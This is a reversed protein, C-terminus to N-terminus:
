TALEMFTVAMGGYNRVDFAKLRGYSQEDYRVDVEHRLVVLVGPDMPVQEPLHVLLQGIPSGISSDRSLPYPPDLFVLTYTGTQEHPAADPLTGPDTTGGPIRPSPAKLELASTRLVRGQGLLALAKLNGQLTRAATADEEVFCCSAAGRSLAEIGLAGSGAFVDLVAVPPLSGPDGYAAGIINFVAQRVRDLM